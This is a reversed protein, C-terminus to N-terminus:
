SNMTEKLVIWHEIGGIGFQFSNKTCNMRRKKSLNEVLDYLLNSSIRKEDFLYCNVDFLSIFLVVM